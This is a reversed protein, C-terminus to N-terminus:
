KLRVDDGSILAQRGWISQAAQADAQVTEGKIAVDCQVNSYDTGDHGDNTLTKSFTVSKLVQETSEGAHFVKNYYYWGDILVWQVNTGGPMVQSYDLTVADDPIQAPLGGGKLDKWSIQPQFRLLMDQEGDNEFWVEKKKQEGPVWKDSPDFQEMVVVEAKNTQFPNPLSNSNAFYTVTSGIVLAFALGVLLLVRFKTKGPLRNLKDKM